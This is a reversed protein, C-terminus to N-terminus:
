TLHIRSSQEMTKLVQEVDKLMDALEDLTVCVINDIENLLVALKQPDTELLARSCVKHLRTRRNRLMPMLKKPLVASSFPV